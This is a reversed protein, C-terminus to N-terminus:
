VHSESHDETLNETNYGPLGLDLNCSTCSKINPWAFKTEWKTNQRCNNTQGKIIANGAQKLEQSGIADKKGEFM